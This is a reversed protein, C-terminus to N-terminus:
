TDEWKEDDEAQRRKLEQRDAVRADKRAARGLGPGEREGGSAVSAVADM